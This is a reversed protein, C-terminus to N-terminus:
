RSAFRFKLMFDVHKAHTHKTCLHHSVWRKRWQEKKLLLILHSLILECKVCGKCQKKVFITFM